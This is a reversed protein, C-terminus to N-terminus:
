ALGLRATVTRPIGQLDDLFKVAPWREQEFMREVEKAQGMGIEMLLWGGPLLYNPSDLVIRRIISLGDSRDTLAHKPEYRGVEEQLSEHDQASIYPPNSVIMGFKVDGLAAFLDSNYIEFRDAVGIREANEIAVRIAADSIELGVATANALANLISISICGSGVGVECIRVPMDDPLANLAAEVLIETEPRPILVDPTVIFELGFFEQRGTIYQFPERAERRKLYAEFATIEHEALQREPHAILFTRDKGLTFALLSAAERRPEAVGAISLRRGATGLIEAITM